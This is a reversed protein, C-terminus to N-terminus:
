SKRYKGYALRGNGVVVRTENKIQLRIGALVDEYLVKETELGMEKFCDCCRIEKTPDDLVITLSGYNMLYKAWRDLLLEKDALDMIQIGTTDSYIHYISRFSERDDSFTSELETHLWDLTQSAVNWYFIYQKLLVELDTVLIGSNAVGASVTDIFNSYVVHARLIMKKIDQEDQIYFDTYLREFPREFLLEVPFNMPFSTLPSLYLDLELFKRIGETVFADLTIPVDRQTLKRYLNSFPEALYQRHFKISEIEDLRTLFKLLYETEHLYKFGEESWRYKEMYDEMSARLKTAYEVIFAPQSLLTQSAISRFEEKKMYEEFIEYIPKLGCTAILSNVYKSALLKKTFNLRKTADWRPEEFFTKLIYQFANLKEEPKANEKPGIHVDIDSGDGDERHVIRATRLKKVYKSVHSEFDDTKKALEKNTYGENDLLEVIVNLDPRKENEKSSMVTLM